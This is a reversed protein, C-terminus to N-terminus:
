RTIFTVGLKMADTDSMVYVQDLRIINVDTSYIPWTQAAYLLIGYFTTSLAENGIYFKAGGANPDAQLAIYEARPVAGLTPATAAPLATLLASLQYPTSATTLTVVGM